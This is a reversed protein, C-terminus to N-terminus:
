LQLTPVRSLYDRYARIEDLELSLAKDASVENAIDRSMDGAALHIHIEDESVIQVLGRAQLCAMGKRVTIETQATVAAIRKLNMQGEHNALAYKVLGALMTLYENVRDNGPYNAFLFVRAPKVRELVEMLEGRGPPLTWIVLAPSPQIDLRNNSHVGVVALKKVADGEAWVSIMEQGVIQKLMALSHPVQRYDIIHITHSRSSGPADGEASRFDLWEVQIERQGRYTVARVAYALDFRGEPCPWGAGHWWLVRQRIGRENEVTLLLHEEGRGVSAMSFLRLNRSALVLPPNAPGFPALRDLDSVLDLTLESFDVYGDIQRSAEVRRNEERLTRTLRKRFQPILEPQISLGAAMPHGGFQILLDKQAAIAETINIGAISRASGRGPGGPPTAILIVPKNFQEVMRSAVIGIVGAPWSDHSLVIAGEELLSSDREVQALAGEFVQSTLLKRRQNLGELELAILRAKGHDGTTLLEVIPNADSLRGMANMRPALAYSIHEETLGEPSLEMREFMALLGPRQTKRLAALGCQLLYRTDGVLYALDAVIGLAVLDKQLEALEPTNMRDCLAQVLKYAVGVGPLSALPHDPPLLKPNIIALVDPLEEPLEHHDTVIVDVKYERALALAALSSVGTDCTLLVRVPHQTEDDLFRRLVEESVGHTEEARVPIHYSVNGGSKKLVDVLVSASTQGDVDFDGWVLIKEGRSIAALLRDCAATMGPFESWSTEQYRSPDLFALAPEIERVGRRFLTHAVLPHGGIANQYEDPLTLEEPELWTVM